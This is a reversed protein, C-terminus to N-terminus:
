RAAPSGPTQTFRWARLTEAVSWAQAICGDAEHPPDADFIESLTGVGHAYLQGLMPELLRRARRADRRLRFDAIVFPGLLWGWVTGQHYAEDRAVPDGAYRGRYGPERPGLSRLGFWTLLERECAAVVAQRQERSLPSHELAVAFIQNPRLAEEHGAPGDLVDHCYGRAPNWFRAFSRRTREALREYEAAPRGLWRALRALNCLADYWLASLEIPKGARPTIVRDGIKADMWTLNLGPQGAHVLGDDGVHIHHRTGRRHWAVIDEMVPFLKELTQRDGTARAYQDAAWLYWLTADATHYEPTEGHDPFRNPILGRDVHGAWTLLIRRADDFRGTCLTLGPLSIMTDRGWDTFWPYGAIITRGAPDAATPRAVLFADAALVLQRVGLPVRAAGGEGFGAAVQRARAYEQRRAHATRAAAEAVPETSLAFTVAAGPPLAVECRGACLHDEFHDYGRQEEVPLRFAEYWVHERTWRPPAAPTVCQVYVDPGGSAPTLRWGGPVDHVAPRLDHSRRLAHYDRHNVLLTTRLHQPPSDPASEYQVYATNRGAEMWIRRTLRVGGPLRFRWTPIGNLLEFCELWACANAASVGDRWVNTHLPLDGIASSVDTGGPPVSGGAPSVNAGGATCGCWWDDLKAVLLTRGLPPRLAAVLLGHYRRTLAGAVTGSAFGGLGNTVLWERRLAARVEACVARSLHLAVPEFAAAPM